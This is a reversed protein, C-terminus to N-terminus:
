IAQAFENLPAQLYATAHFVTASSRLFAEGTLLENTIGNAVAEWDAAALDARV